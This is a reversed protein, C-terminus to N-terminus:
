KIFYTGSSVNKFPAKEIYKFYFMNKHSSLGCKKELGEGVCVGWQVNLVFDYTVIFNDMNKMKPM